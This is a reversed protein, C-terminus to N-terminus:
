KLCPPRPLGRESSISSLHTPPLSAEMSIDPPLPNGPLLLALVFARLCSTGPLDSSCRPPWHTPAWRTPTLPPFCSCIQRSDLHSPPLLAYAPARLWTFPSPLRPWVTGRSPSSHAPQRGTKFSSGCSKSTFVPSTSCDEPLTQTLFLLISTLSAQFVTLNPKERSRQGLGVHARASPWYDVVTQTHTHTKLHLMKFLYYSRM